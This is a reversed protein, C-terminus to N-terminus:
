RTRRRRLARCYRPRTSPPRIIPSESTCPNWGRRQDATLFQFFPIRAPMRSVIAAGASRRAPQRVSPAGGHDELLDCGATALGVEDAVGVGAGRRDDIGLQALDVAVDRERRALAQPDAVQDVRVGVGIVERARALECSPEVHRHDHVARARRREDAHAEVVALQQDHAVQPQLHQVRRPVRAVRHAQDGLVPDEGAVREEDAAGPAGIKRGAVRLRQVRAQELAQELEVGHELDVGRVVVLALAVGRDALLDRGVRPQLLASARREDLHHAVEVERHRRM